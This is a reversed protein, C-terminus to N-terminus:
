RAVVVARSAEFLQGSGDNAHARLKCFYIGAPMGEISWEARQAGAARDGEVLVAVLRGSVDYARLSVHSPAPLTFPLFATGRAPSPISAGVAFAVGTGPGADTPTVGLPACLSFESTNSADDTATATFVYGGRTSSLPYQVDFLALGTGNTTVPTSGLWTEGEGHGDPSCSVNSYFDLTFNLSPKSSLHGQLRVQTGVQSVAAIRPFNQLHNPGDDGDLSDNPAPGGTSTDLKIGLQPDNAFISNGRVPNQVSNVLVGGQNHAIINGLTGPGGVTTRDSDTQIGAGGNGLLLASNFSTGIANGQITNDTASAGFITVGDLGNAGIRNGTGDATSGGIMNNHSFPLFIGTSTNGLPLAGDYTLGINNGRIENFSSHDDAYIGLGNGSVVNGKGIGGVVTYDCGLQIGSQDNGLAKTGSVDTGIFNRYIRTGDAPGFAGFQCDTYIGYNVNGSILNNEIVVGKASSIVGYINSLAVTGTVDTGIYNGIVTDQESAVALTVGTGNGSILNRFAPGRGGILARKGVVYIGSASNPIKATGDANTGIFCASVTCVDATIYVCQDSFNNFAIGRVSSHAAGIPFPLSALDGSVEIRPIQNYGPQTTGDIATTTTIEPLNSLLHVTQVGSAPIAFVIRHPGPPNANVQEMADRLSGPGSDATNIVTYTTANARLSLGLGLVAVLGQLVRKM